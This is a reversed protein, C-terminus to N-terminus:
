AGKGYAELYSLAIGYLKQSSMDIYLSEHKEDVTAYM